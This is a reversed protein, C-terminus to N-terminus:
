ADFSNSTEPEDIPLRSREDMDARKALTVYAILGVFFFFFIGLSVMPYVSIGGISELYHIFKM